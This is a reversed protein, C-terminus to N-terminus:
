VKIIQWGITQEENRTKGSISINQNEVFSNKNGFYLGTEIDILHNDAFFRWGSNEIEILISKNDQTKTIKTGPEFHFRIEFNTSKFNKKKVLKDEGILKNYNPYFDIKREHIIGYKKLYGDHSGMISWHDKNFLINKKLIKLGKDVKMLGNSDKRFKCSSQNDICLTSHTATSKSILNLQHKSNQFYGNNSILKINNYYIEFSLAGSQYNQSFKKEPSSGIDASLVINKNKLVVYGGYENNDNKFKYNHLKLYNEFKTNDSNQNGNFLLSKNITQLLLSYSQGNLFIIENIYDPIENQSEKFWERILIFYKLFFNLQRINRSKPFGVKDFSNDIIKKLLDLGYVLYKENKYSLGALIIAACGIMKDEIWISRNIENILHNVQKKINGDFKGKYIENSDEYTLRSNSIWSIVRKSLIDLEWNKSNYKHNKEIWNYIVSQTIKKSSKLDLSFLWFFNHLKRYDKFNINENWISNLYFDEINTKKKYKILCDLLNPSPKYVLSQLHIKSIKKNYINSSLYIKRFQNISYSIIESFLSLSNRVVM